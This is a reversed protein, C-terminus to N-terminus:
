KKMGACKGDTAKAKADGAMSHMRDIESNDLVGDDIASAILTKKSM